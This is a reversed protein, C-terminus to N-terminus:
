LARRLRDSPRRAVGRHPTRWSLSLRSPDARIEGCSSGVCTLHAAPKMTTERVMREVLAHTRERTSGGAGYTVSVFAPGLPELRTAAEWLNAEMDATKPPFFEFSVHVQAGARSLPLPKQAM